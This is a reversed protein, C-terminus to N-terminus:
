RSSSFQCRTSFLRRRLNFHSHGAPSQDLAGGIGEAARTVCNFLAVRFESEPTEFFMFAFRAKVSMSSRTTMATMAIRAASKSGARLRALSLALRVEHMLLKLCTLKAM